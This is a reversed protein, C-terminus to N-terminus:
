RREATNSGLLQQSDAARQRNRKTKKENQDDTRATRQAERKGGFGKAKRAM